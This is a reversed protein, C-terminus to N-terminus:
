GEELQFSEMMEDTVLARGSGAPMPRDWDAPLDVKDSFSIPVIVTGLDSSWSSIGISPAGSDNNPLLVIPLHGVELKHM